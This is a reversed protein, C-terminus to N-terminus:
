LDWAGWEQEDGTRPRRTLPRGHETKPEWILWLGCGKCQRPTHTEMMEDAWESRALYGRPM